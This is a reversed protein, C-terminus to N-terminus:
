HSVAFRRTEDEVDERTADCSRCLVDFVHADPPQHFWRRHRYEPVPTGCDQCTLADPDRDALTDLLSELDRVTAEPDGAIGTSALHEAVRAVEHLRTQLTPSYSARSM